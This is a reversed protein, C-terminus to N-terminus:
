RARSALHVGRDKGSGAAASVDCERTSGTSLRNVRSLIDTARTLRVTTLV